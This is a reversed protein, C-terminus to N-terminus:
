GISQLYKNEIITIMKNFAIKEGNNVFELVKSQDLKKTKCFRYAADFFVLPDFRANFENIYESPFIIKGPKFLNEASNNNCVKPSIIIPFTLMNLVEDDLMDPSIIVNCDNLYDISRDYLLPAGYTDMMKEGMENYVEDNETYVKVVSFHKIMKEVFDSNTGDKDILGISRRIFPIQTKELVKIGSNLCLFKPLKKAKHSILNSDAPLIIDKETVINKGFRPSINLVGDFKIKGRKEVMEIICYHIDKTSIEILNPHYRGFNYRLKDAFTLNKYNEKLM